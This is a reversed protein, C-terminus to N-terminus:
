LNMEDDAVIRHEHRQVSSGPPRSVAVFVFMVVWLPLVWGAALNILFFGRVPRNRHARILTPTFYVLLYVTAFWFELHDPTLRSM